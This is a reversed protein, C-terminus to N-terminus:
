YRSQPTVADDGTTRLLHRAAGRMAASVVDEAILSPTRHVTQQVAREVARGRQDVKERRRRQLEARRGGGGAAAKEDDAASRQREDDDDDALADLM